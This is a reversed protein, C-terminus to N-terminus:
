LDFVGPVVGIIQDAFLVLGPLHTFQGTAEKIIVNVLPISESRPPINDNLTEQDIRIEKEQMDEYMVKTVSFLDIGKEFAEVFSEKTSTDVKKIQALEGQIQGYSTIFIIGKPKNIESIENLTNSTHVLTRIYNLKTDLM